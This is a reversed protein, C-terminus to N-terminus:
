REQAINNVNPLVAQEFLMELLFDLIGLHKLALEVQAM